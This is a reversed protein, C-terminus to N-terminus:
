RENIFTKYFLAKIEEILTSKDDKSIWEELINAEDQNITFLYRHTTLEILYKAYKVKLSVDKEKKSVLVANISTTLTEPSLNDFHTKM